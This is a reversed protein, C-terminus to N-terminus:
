AWLSFQRRCVSAVGGAVGGPVGGAVGGTVGIGGRELFSDDLDTSVSGEVTEVAPAEEVRQLPARVAYSTEPIEIPQAVQKQLQDKASFSETLTSSTSEAGTPYSKAKAEPPSPPIEGSSRRSAEASPTPVMVASFQEAPDETTRIKLVQWAVTAGVVALAITAALRLPWRRPAATATVNVGALTAADPIEAQIKELLGAPPPPVPFDRLESELKRHTDNPNM